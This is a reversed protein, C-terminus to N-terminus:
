ITVKNKETLSNMYNILQILSEEKIISGGENLVYGDLLKMRVLRGIDQPLWNLKSNLQPYEEICETPSLRRNPKKLEHYSM